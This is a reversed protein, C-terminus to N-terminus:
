TKRAPADGPGKKGDNRDAANGSPLLKALDIPVDEAAYEFCLAIEPESLGPQGRTGDVAGFGSRLKQEVKGRLLKRASELHRSVSSEHEGLTRGIEALTKEEAYYLRLREREAPELQSLAAQLAQTFLLIYRERHPDLPENVTVPSNSPANDAGDESCLQEFKRNARLSDIHRRSLVARLWTKLSSRGHFYRLLSREAGRGSGMGYLEAFLSDALEAAEASGMGTRLIAAASRLYPRYVFVFHEWAAEHGDACATALALDHLHLSKLYETLKQHSVGSEAAFLKTVSRELVDSFRQRTIEWRHCESQAFLWDLLESCGDLPQAPNTQEKMGRRFQGDERMM